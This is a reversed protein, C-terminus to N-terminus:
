QSRGRSGNCALTFAGFITRIRSAFQGPGHLANSLMSYLHPQDIGNTSKDMMMRDSHEKAKGM